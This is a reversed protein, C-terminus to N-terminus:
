VGPTPAPDSVIMLVAEGGPAMNAVIRLPRSGGEGNGTQVECSAGADGDRLKKLLGLLAFRSDPALFDAVPRGGVEDPEVGLLRSGALNSEIVLGERGVVFYGVPAFDFLAKYRDLEQAFERENAQLQGHQLDLEVQHAQLEHLLKLADGASDPVSALRYLLALAEASVGWGKTQPASGERLRLEADLRLQTQNRPDNTPNPM